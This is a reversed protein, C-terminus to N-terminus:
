ACRNDTPVRGLEGEHTPCHLRNHWDGSVILFDKDMGKNSELMYFILRICPVKCKIYYKTEKRKQYNYVWNVDHWTLNAGIKHNIMDISRLVRFINPSCQTSTLKYNMLFDRTVRGKPIEMRGKIFTIMPIVVSGPPWNMVLWEGLECHWLEVNNSIRYQARFAAMGKLTDVLKTFRGM